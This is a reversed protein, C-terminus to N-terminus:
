SAKQLVRKLSTLPRNARGASRAPAHTQRPLGRTSADLAFLDRRVPRTRRDSPATTFNM